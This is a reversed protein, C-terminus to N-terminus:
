TAVVGTVLNWCGHRCGTSLMIQIYITKEPKRSRRHPNQVRFAQSGTSGQQGAFFNARDGCQEIVPMQLAPAKLSCADRFLLVGLYKDVPRPGRISLPFYDLSSHNHFSRCNTSQLRICAWLSEAVGAALGVTGQLM